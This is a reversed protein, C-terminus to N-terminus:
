SSPLRKAFLEEQESQSPTLPLEGLSPAERGVAALCRVEKLKRPVWFRFKKEVRQSADAIRVPASPDSAEVFFEDYDIWKSRLYVAIIEENLRYHPIYDYVWQATEPDPSTTGMASEFQPAATRTTQASSVSPVVSVEECLATYGLLPFLIKNLLTKTADLRCAYTYAISSRGDLKLHLPQGNTPNCSRRANCQNTMGDHM